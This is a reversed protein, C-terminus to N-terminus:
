RTMRRMRSMRTCSTMARPDRAEHRTEAALRLLSWISCLRDDVDADADAEAEFLEAIRGPQETKADTMDQRDKDIRDKVRDEALPVDPAAM